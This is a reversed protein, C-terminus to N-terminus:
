EFPNKYTDKFPNARDIPNLEPVKGKIPNSKVDIAPASIAKIADEATKVPEPAKKRASYYWFVLGLVALAMLIAGFKILNTKQSEVLKNYVDQM